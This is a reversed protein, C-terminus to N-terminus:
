KVVIVSCPANLVLSRSTSGFIREAIASHGHFGVLLTDFGNHLIYEIVTRVEHGPVVTTHLQVGERQASAEAERNLQEFYVDRQAKVVEIEEITAAYKPLDEEVTISYLDVSFAKALAIGAQLAKKAGDSGDYAVLIRRFV